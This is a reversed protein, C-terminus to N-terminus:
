NNILNILEGIANEEDLGNAVITICSDKYVGLSVIGLISKANVKANDKQVFIESLFRSATQVFLTVNRARLVIENKIKIKKKMM